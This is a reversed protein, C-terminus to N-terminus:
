KDQKAATEAPKSATEAPKSATESPRPEVPMGNRLQMLRDGIIRDGAQLGSEVVWADGVWDGLVLTRQQATGDAGIVYVMPGSASHLVARQPVLLTDIFDIGLVTVHVYQGPVLSGDPNPVTGRIVTTGTSPDVLVDVFDIRGVGPFKTGDALTVELTLQDVAPNTVKGEAALRRWRLIEQESVAYRVYIPDVRRLTAILSNGSTDDVYSGIDRTVRGVVGAVPAEITTFSLDLEAQAIRAKTTDVLASSVRETAQWEELETPSVSGRSFLEQYRQLQQRAQDLRAEASALDAKASDLDTEFQRPDIRVLVQGQEVKQGEEFAREVIFGKVRSRIEVVLSAETQGLFSPRAPVTAAEIPLVEVQMPKAPAAAASLEPKPDHQKGRLYLFAGLAGVVAIAAVIALRIRSPNPRAEHALSEPAHPVVGVPQTM